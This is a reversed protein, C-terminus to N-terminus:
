FKPTIKLECPMVTWFHCQVIDTVNGNSNQILMHGNSFTNNPESSLFATQHLTCPYHTNNGHFTIYILARFHLTNYHSPCKLAACYVVTCYLVTCYLATCYPVACLLATCYLATCHLSNWHLIDVRLVNCYLINCHLVNRNSYSVNCYIATWNTVTCYMICPLLKATHSLVTCLM